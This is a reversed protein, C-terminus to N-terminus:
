TRALVTRCVKALRPLSFLTVSGFPAELIREVAHRYLELKDLLWPLFVDETPPTGGGNLRLAVEDTFQAALRLVLEGALDAHPVFFQKANVGERIIGDLLPLNARLSDSKIKERMLVGDDRYAVRLLMTVYDMRDERWLSGQEFFANLKEVPAGGAAACADVAAQATARSEEARALCIADLVAVKSDFHHYFGGKSYGMASLIDQVSTQEYGMRSFLREATELIQARRADGKRM